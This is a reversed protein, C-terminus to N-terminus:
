WSRWWGGGDAVAVAVVPKALSKPNTLAKFPSHVRDSFQPRRRRAAPQPVGLAQPPPPVVLMAVLPNHMLTLVITTM